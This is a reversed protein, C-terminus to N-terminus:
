GEKRPFDSRKTLVFIGSVSSRRAPALAYRVHGAAAPGFNRRLPRSAVILAISVGGAPDSVGLSLTTRALLSM